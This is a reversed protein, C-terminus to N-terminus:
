NEYYLMLSPTYSARHFCNRIHQHFYKNFRKEEKIHTYINSLLLSDHSFYKFRGWLFLASLCVSRIDTTYWWIVDRVFMRPIVHFKYIIQYTLHQIVVLAAHCPMCVYLICVCSSLFLKIIWIKWSPRSWCVMTKHSPSTLLDTM